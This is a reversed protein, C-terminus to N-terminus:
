ARTHARKSLWWAVFLILTAALGFGVWPIEEPIAIQGMRRQPLLTFLGAVGLGWFACSKLWRRHQDIRGGRVARIALFLTCLVYLSLGHIPSFPGLVRIEQIWFSSLATGAMALVWVYGVRRHGVGGVHRLLQVPTLVAAILALCLHIQVAFPAAAIPDFM